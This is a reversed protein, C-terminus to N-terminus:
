GWALRRLADRHGAKTAESQVLCHFADCLVPIAFWWFQLLTECSLVVDIPFVIGHVPPTQPDEWLHAPIQLHQIVALTLGFCQGPCLVTVCGQPCCTPDQCIGPAGSCGLLHQFPPVMATVMNPFLLMGCEGKISGSVM